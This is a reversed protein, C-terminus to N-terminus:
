NTNEKLQTIIKTEYDETKHEDIKLVGIGLPYPDALGLPVDEHVQVVLSTHPNGQPDGPNPVWYETFGLIQGSGARRKLETWEKIAIKKRDPPLSFYLIGRQPNRYMGSSIPVPVVFLGWIQIREPANEDPEFVVKDVIGYIGINGNKALSIPVLLLIVLASLIAVRHTRMAKAVRGKHCQCGYLFSANTVRVVPNSSSWSPQESKRNIRIGIAWRSSLM